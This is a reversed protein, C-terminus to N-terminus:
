NSGEVEKEKSEHSHMVRRGARKRKRSADIRMEIDEEGRRQEEARQTTKSNAKRRRKRYIGM